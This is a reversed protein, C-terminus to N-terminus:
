TMSGSSGSRFSRWICSGLFGCRFGSGFSQSHEPEFVFSADSLKLKDMADRLEPFDAANVPYIGCFVLSKHIRFGPLAEGCPNRTDTITDGIIIERPQRINATLYGVEGCCLEGVASYKLDKFVGLEEIKYTKGSHLLKLQTKPEIRGDVVRVYVVVGKYTDYRCDFVLAKLPNDPNGAPPPVERVIRELIRAVGTGDKASAQIIEQEGFGLVDVVQRTVRPIDVSSLDI